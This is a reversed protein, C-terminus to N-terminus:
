NASVVSGNIEATEDGTTLSLPATPYHAALASFVTSAERYDEYDPLSLPFYSGGERTQYLGVVRGADQIPLPRLFLVNVLSFIAVHAGVGPALTLIVLATFLPTAAIRRLVHRFVPLTASM